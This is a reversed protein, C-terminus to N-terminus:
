KNIYIAVETGCVRFFYLQSLELTERVKPFNYNFAQMLNQRIKAMM